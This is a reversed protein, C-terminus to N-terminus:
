KRTNGSCIYSMARNITITRGHFGRIMKCMEQRNSFTDDGWMQSFNEESPEREGNPMLSCNKRLSQITELVRRLPPAEESPSRLSSSLYSEFVAAYHVLDKVINRLCESESFSTNRLVTCGSGQILNPVCTLATESDSRVLAKGSATGHCVDDHDLLETVKGLLDKFLSPCDTCDCSGSARVPLGTSTPWNLTLLLLLACSAFDAYLSSNLFM